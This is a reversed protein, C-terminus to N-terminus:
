ELLVLVLLTDMEFLENEILSNMEIDSPSYVNLVNIAVKCEHYSIDTIMM